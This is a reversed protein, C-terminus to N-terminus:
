QPLLSLLSSSAQLGSQLGALRSWMRWSYRAPFTERPMPIAASAPAVIRYRVEPGELLVSTAELREFRRNSTAGVAEPPNAAKEPDNQCSLSM